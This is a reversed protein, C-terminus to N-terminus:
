EDGGKNFWPSAVSFGTGPHHLPATAHREQCIAEVREIKLEQDAIREALTDTKSFLRETIKSLNDAVEGIRAEMAKLSQSVTGQGQKYIYILATSFSGGLIVIAGALWAVAKELLAVYLGADPTSTPVTM